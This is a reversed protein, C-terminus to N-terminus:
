LRLGRHRNFCAFLEQKRPRALFPVSFRNGCLTELGKQDMLAELAEAIQRLDRTGDLLYRQAYLVCCGLASVQESDTLQEM